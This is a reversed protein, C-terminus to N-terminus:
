ADAWSQGRKIRRVFRETLGYKRSVGAITGGSALERKISRAVDLTLKRAFQYPESCVSAATPVEARCVWQHNPPCPGVFTRGLYRVVRDRDCPVIRAVRGESSILLKEVEKEDGVVQRWEEAM